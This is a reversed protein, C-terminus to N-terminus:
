RRSGPGPTGEGTITGSVRDSMPGRSRAPAFTPCLFFRRLRDSRLRAAGGQPRRRRCERGWRRFRNRRRLGSDEPRGAPFGRADHSIAAGRQDRRSDIVYSADGTGDLPPFFFIRVAMGLVLRLPVEHPPNKSLWGRNPQTLVHPIAIAEEDHAEDGEQDKPAPDLIEREKDSVEEQQPQRTHHEHSSPVAQGSARRAARVWLTVQALNPPRRIVAAQWRPLLAPPDQRALDEIRTIGLRRLANYHVAGLGELDVLRAAARLETLDDPSIGTERALTMLRDGTATRRV